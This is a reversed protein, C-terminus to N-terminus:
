STLPRFLVDASATPKLDNASSRSTAAYMHTESTRDSRRTLTTVSTTLFDKAHQQDTFCVIYAKADGAYPTASDALENPIRTALAAWHSLFAQRPLRRPSGLAILKTDCSSTPAAPRPSGVAPPPSTM